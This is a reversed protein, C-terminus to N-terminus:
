YGHEVPEVIHEQPKAGLRAIGLHGAEGQDIENSAPWVSEVGIKQEISAIDREGQSIFFVGSNECGGERRPGVEEDGVIQAIEGGCPPCDRICQHGAM